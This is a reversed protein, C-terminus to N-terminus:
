IEYDRKELNYKAPRQTDKWVFICAQSVLAGLFTYAQISVDLLFIVDLLVIFAGFFLVFLTVALRVGGIYKRLFNVLM